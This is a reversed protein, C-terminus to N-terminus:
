ASNSIKIQELSRYWTTRLSQSQALTPLELSNFWIGKEKPWRHMMRRHGDSLIWHEEAAMLFLGPHLLTQRPCHFNVSGIGSVMWPHTVANRQVRCTPSRACFFSDSTNEEDYKIQDLLQKEGTTTLQSQCPSTVKFAEIFDEKVARRTTAM